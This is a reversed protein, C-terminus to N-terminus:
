PLLAVNQAAAKIEEPVEKAPPAAPAVVAPVTAVAGYGYVPNGTLNDFAFPTVSSPNFGAVAYRNTFVPVVILDSANFYDYARYNPFYDYFASFAGLGPGAGFAPSAGYVPAAYLPMSYNSAFGGLVPPTVDYRLGFSGGYGGVPYLGGYGINFGGGEMFGGPGYFHTWNGYNNRFTGVAQAQSLGPSLLVAAGAVVAIAAAWLRNNM